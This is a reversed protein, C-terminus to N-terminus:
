IRYIQIEYETFNIIENINFLVSGNIYNYNHKDDDAITHFYFGKYGIQLAIEPSIWKGIGLTFAPSVNSQVFDESKIGSIQVGYSSLIFWNNNNLNINQNEIQGFCFSVVFLIFQFPRFLRHDSLM